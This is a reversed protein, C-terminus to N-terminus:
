SRADDGSYRGAFCIFWLRASWRVPSGRYHGLDVTVDSPDMMGLMEEITWVHDTLGAATAPTTKVGKATKTLTGHPKSLNNILYFVSVAYAHNQAKWDLSALFPAPARM